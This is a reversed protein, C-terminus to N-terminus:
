DFTMFHLFHIQLRILWSPLRGEYFSQVLMITVREGGRAVRRKEFKGGGEVGWFRGGAGRGFTEELGGAM